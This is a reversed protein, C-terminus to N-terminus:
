PVVTSEAQLTGDSQNTEYLVHHHGYYGHHYGGYGYYHHHHYEEECGALAFGLLILLCVLLRKM